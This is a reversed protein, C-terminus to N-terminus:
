RPSLSIALTITRAHGHLDSRHPVTAFVHVTISGGPPRSGAFLPGAHPLHALTGVYIAGEGRALKITVTVQRPNLTRGGTWGTTTVYYRARHGTHNVRYLVAPHTFAAASKVQVKVDLMGPAAVAPVALVAGILATFVGIRAVRIM